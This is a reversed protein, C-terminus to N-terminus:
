LDERTKVDVAHTYGCKPCNVVLIGMNQCMHILTQAQNEKVAKSNDLKEIERNVNEYEKFLQIIGEIGEMRAESVPSIIPIDTLNKLKHLMGMIFELSELNTTDSLEEIEPIKPQKLQEITEQIRELALFGETNTLPEVEPIEPMNNLQDILDIIGEVVVKQPETNHSEENRKKLNEIIEEDTVTSSEIVADCQALDQEVDVIDAQNEKLEEKIHIVSRLLTGDDSAEGLMKYNDGGKTDVLLYAENCSQANLARGNYIPINIYKKMVPPMEKVNTLTKGSKNTYVLSGDKYMEYLSQGNKYKDRVLKVGDSFTATIRFYEKGDKIYKKQKTKNWDELLVRLAKLVTSKGSDNYGKITMINSEDFELVAQEISMFNQITIEEIRSYKAM